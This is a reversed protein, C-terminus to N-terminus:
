TAMNRDSVILSLLIGASYFPGFLHTHIIAVHIGANIVLSKLSPSHKIYFNDYLCFALASVALFLGYMRAESNQNLIIASTCFVALTGITTPWFNYRRRLTTWVAVLAICITISSFLRYSLESSGFIKDWCWGTVFYLIPTNNIKNHFATLM